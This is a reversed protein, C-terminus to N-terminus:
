LALVQEISEGELLRESGGGPAIREISKGDSHVVTGDEAVDFTLVNRAISETHGGVRRRMLEWSSPVLGQSDDDHAQVMQARALNGHIFLQRPDLRRQVAGKNTVLPKGTYMMSFVNFYQFLALAMRFPFLAADKFSGLLSADPIGSEYPKRIYYLTGDSTYRPQLLDRGAESVIEELDGSELDLQQITCPGLGAFRGAADRGVGASQFVIRKGGPAWHPVQDFSDGETVESFETGHVPLVAINSRMSDKHFATATLTAGDPHLATHRICFDATHFLRTERGMADLLFIGSVADTEMSYLLAGEPGATLGTLLVPVDNPGGAQTAWVHGAFMAGRGKTKWAHRREISATRERVTREFESEIIQTVDNKRVHLKRNSLFAVAPQPM